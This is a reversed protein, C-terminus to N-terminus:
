RWGWTWPCDQSSLSPLPEQFLTQKVNLWRACSTDQSLTVKCSYKFLATYIYIYNIVASFNIFHTAFEVSCLWFNITLWVSLVNEAKINTSSKNSHEQFCVTLSDLLWMIEAWVKKKLIWNLITMRYRLSELPRERELQRVLVANANMIGGMHATYRM